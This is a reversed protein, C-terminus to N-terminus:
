KADHDMQWLAFPNGEPDVTMAFWGMRAIATRGKMLTAGLGTAKQVAEDLSPVNVYNVWARADYGAPRELMGGNIGGPSTPRGKEDVDVTTIFRYDM